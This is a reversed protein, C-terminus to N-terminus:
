GGRTISRLRAAITILSIGITLYGLVQPNSQLLSTVKDRLDPDGVANALPDLMAIASGFGGLLYGWTVTASKGCYAWVKAWFGDAEAYSTQLAPIKRLFPRLVLAYTVILGPILLGFALM